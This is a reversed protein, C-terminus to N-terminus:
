FCMDLSRYEKREIMGRIGKTMLVGNIQYYPENKSLYIHLGQGPFNCEIGIANLKKWLIIPCM